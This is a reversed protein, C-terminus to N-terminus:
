KLSGEKAAQDFAAALVALHDAKIYGGLTGSANLEVAYYDNRYGYFGYVLENGGRELTITVDPTGSATAQEAVGRFQLQSLYAFLTKATDDSLTKGNLTFNKDVSQTLRFTEAGLDLTVNATQDASVPFVATPFLNNTEVELLANFGSALEYVGSRGEQMCYYRGSELQNGIFIKVFRGSSETLAIYAPEGDLGYEPLPESGVYASFRPSAFFSKVLTVAEANAIATFPSTLMWSELGVSKGEPIKEMTIPIRSGSARVIEIKVLKSADIDITLDSMAKAANQLISFSDLDYVYLADSGGYQLFVGDKASTYGGFRVTQSTGDDLAVDVQMAAPDLGYNALSDVQDFLKEKAYLYCVMTLASEMSGQDVSVGANERYRWVGDTKVLDIVSDGQTIKMGTVKTYSVKYVSIATQKAETGDERLLFFLAAAICLFLAIGVGILVWTKKSGM